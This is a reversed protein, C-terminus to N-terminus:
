TATGGAAVPYAAALAEPAAAEPALLPGLPEGSQRRVAVKM